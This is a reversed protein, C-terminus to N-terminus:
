RRAAVVIGSRHLHRRDARPDDPWRVRLPGNDLRLCEVVRHRGGGCVRGSLRRGGSDLHGDLARPSIEHEHEKGVHLKLSSRARIAGRSAFPSLNEPAFTTPEAVVQDTGLDFVMLKSLDPVAVWLRQGDKTPPMM